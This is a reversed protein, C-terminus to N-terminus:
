KSINQKIENYVDQSVYLDLHTLKSEEYEPIFDVKNKYSTDSYVLYDVNPNDILPVSYEAGLQSNSITMVSNLGDALNENEITYANGSVLIDNLYKTDVTAEIQSSIQNPTSSDQSFVWFLLGIFSILGIVGVITNQVWKSMRNSNFLNFVKSSDLQTEEVPMAVNASEALGSEYVSKALNEKEQLEKEKQELLIIKDQKLVSIRPLNELHGKSVYNSVLKADGVFTVELSKEIIKRNVM